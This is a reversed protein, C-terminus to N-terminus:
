KLSNFHRPLLNIALYAYLKYNFPNYKLAILAERISKCRMGLRMYTSSRMKHWHSIYRSIKYSHYKGKIALLERGVVDNEAPIRIPRESLDYEGVNYYALPKRTYAIKYRAALRAWTLLDEGSKVGLPFGGISQIAPKKIMITISCIPPHSCSAVDFYNDLIGDDGKFPLHHIITPKVKGNKDCFKYNCGFANCEPYKQYLNYQTQLYEKYWEDDADLFAILEGKAEKIGRNRAASVGANNQNIIRIRHDSFREVEYISNDTSGDNIIVIEFNQFTQNLVTHLTKVISDKKNYLPIIVSIM